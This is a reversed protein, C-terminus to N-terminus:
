STDGHELMGARTVADSLRTGGQRLHPPSQGRRDSAGDHARSTESSLVRFSAPVLARVLSCPPVPLPSAGIEGLEIGCSSLGDGTTHALWADDDDDQSSSGSAFGFADHDGATGTTGALEWGAAGVRDSTAPPWAGPAALDFDFPRASTPTEPPIDLFDSLLADM